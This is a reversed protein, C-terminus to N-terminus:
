GLLSGRQEGEPVKKEEMGEVEDDSDLEEEVIPGSGAIPPPSRLIAAISLLEHHNYADVKEGLGSAIGM